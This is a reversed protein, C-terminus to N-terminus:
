DPKGIKQYIFKKISNFKKDKRIQDFIGLIGKPSFLVIILFIVGLVLIYRETVGSILVELWVAVFTGV